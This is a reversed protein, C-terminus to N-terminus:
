LEHNEKRLKELEDLSMGQVQFGRISKEPSEGKEPSYRENEILITRPTFSEEKLRVKQEVKGYVGFRLTNEVMKSILDDDIEILHESRYGFQPARSLPVGSEGGSM